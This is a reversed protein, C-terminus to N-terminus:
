QLERRLHGYLQTVVADLDGELIIRKRDTQEPALTSSVETRRTCNQGEIDALSWTTVNKKGAALIEKLSPIRPLNIDSTVSIVAPLTVELVEVEEELTREVIIKDGDPVIKSVANITAVGLLEGLQIGVQQAYLDSSGEGCIVLDFKGIKAVAKALVQATQFSDAGELNEDVVLYLKGPGRSLASKRLKSSDLTKNGISLALVKGGVNEAIQVGAEIASQDYQGIKWEAKTFSLRQDVQIVIDQEDPVVKYCVVIDM